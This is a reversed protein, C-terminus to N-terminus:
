TRGAIDAIDELHYYIPFHREWDFLLVERSLALARALDGQKYAVYARCHTARAVGHASGTSRSIASAEEVLSAARALAAPDGGEDIADRNDLAALNLLTWAIRGPANLRRFGALADHLRRQAVVLDGQHVAAVGLVFSASAAGFEDENARASTLAEGALSRVADFDAHVHALWAATTLARMREAPSGGPMALARRAWRRLLHAHAAGTTWHPDLRASVLRLALDTEGHEVAWDVAAQM